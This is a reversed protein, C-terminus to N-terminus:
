ALAYVGFRCIGFVCEQKLPGAMGFERLLVM